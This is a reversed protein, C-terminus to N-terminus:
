TFEIKIARIIYVIITGVINYNDYQRTKKPNKKNTKKTIKEHACIKNGLNSKEVNIKM